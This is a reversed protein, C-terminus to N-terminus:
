LFQQCRQLLQVLSRAEVAPDANCARCIAVFEVLDLRRQSTEVRAVLNQPWDLKAALQRQTLGAERRLRVVHAIVEQYAPTYVSRTM